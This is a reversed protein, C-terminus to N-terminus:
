KEMVIIRYKLRNWKASLGQLFILQGFDDMSNDWNSQLIWKEFFLDFQHRDFEPLQFNSIDWYKSFEVNDLESSSLDNMGIAELLLMLEKEDALYVTQFDPYNDVFDEISNLTSLNFHDSAIFNFHM